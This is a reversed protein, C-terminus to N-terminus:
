QGNTKIIIQYLAM